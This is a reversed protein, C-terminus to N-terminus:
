ANPHMMCKMERDVIRDTNNKVIGVFPGTEAPVGGADLKYRRSRGVSREINDAM